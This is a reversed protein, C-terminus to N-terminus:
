LGSLSVPVSMMTLPWVVSQNPLSGKLRGIGAGNVLVHRKSKIGKFMCATGEM